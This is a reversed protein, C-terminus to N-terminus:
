TDFQLRATLFDLNGNISDRRFFFFFVGEQLTSELEMEPLKIGTKKGPYFLGVQCAKYPMGAKHEHRPYYAVQVDGM